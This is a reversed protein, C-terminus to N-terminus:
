AARDLVSRLEAEGLVIINAGADVPSLDAPVPRGAPDGVARAASVGLAALIQEQQAAIRALLATQHSLQTAVRNLTAAIAADREDLREGLQNLTRLSFHLSM